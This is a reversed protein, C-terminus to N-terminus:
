AADDLMIKAMMQEFKGGAFNWNPQSALFRYFSDTVEYGQMENLDQEGVDGEAYTRTNRNKAADNIATLDESQATKRIYLTGDRGYLNGNGRDMFMSDKLMAAKCERFVKVFLKDFTRIVSGSISVLDSPAIFGGAFKKEDAAKQRQAAEATAEAQEDNDEFLEPNLEYLEAMDINDVDELDINKEDATKERLSQNVIEMIEDAYVDPDLQEIEYDTYGYARKYADAAMQATRAQARRKEWMAIFNPQNKRVDFDLASSLTPITQLSYEKGPQIITNQFLRWSMPLITENRNWMPSDGARFVISNRESIFAMDNYSIVPMEKVSMTYSVKGENQMVLREMDRTVTKSDKFARHTTGSMKQLTEIM